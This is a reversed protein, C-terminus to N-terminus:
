NGSIFFKGRKCGEGEAFGDGSYGKQCKCRFGTGNVPTCKANPDCNCVGPLWWGLEVKQAQVEVSMSSNETVIISSGNQNWNVMISSFLFSCHGRERINEYNSFEVYCDKAEAYYSINHNYNDSSNRDEFDCGDTNFFSNILNSPITFDDVPQSCNGLLLGNRGTVAFNTGFLPNLADISRNCTAPLSVLISDSTLSQVLFDGIHIENESCNLKIKCGDSFGFPYPVKNEVEGCSRNCNNAEAAPFFHSM